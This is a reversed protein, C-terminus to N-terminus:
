LIYSSWPAPQNSMWKVFKRRFLQAVQGLFIGGCAEWYPTSVAANKEALPAARECSTGVTFILTWDTQARFVRYWLSAFPISFENGNCWIRRLLISFKQLTMTLILMFYYKMCFKNSTCVFKMGIGLPSNGISFLYFSARPSWKWIVARVESYLRM